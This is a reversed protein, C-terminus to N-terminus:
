TPSPHGQLAVNELPCYPIFVELKRNIRRCLINSRNDYLIGM